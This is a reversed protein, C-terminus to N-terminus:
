RRSCVHNMIARDIGDKNAHSMPGQDGPNMQSLVNSSADLLQVHRLRVLKRQCDASVYMSMGYPVQANQTMSANANPFLPRGNADNIYLWFYRIHGQRKLSGNDIYWAKDQSDTLVKVWGNPAAVSPSGPTLVAIANGLLMALLGLRLLGQQPVM